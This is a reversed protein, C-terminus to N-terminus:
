KVKEQKPGAPDSAPGNKQEGKTEIASTLKAMAQRALRRQDAGRTYVALSARSRHGTIAMIEEDTCGINALRTAAADRLGHASCHPLEAEDCRDRFWNGFGASTFSRGRETVLFSALNSLPQAKMAKLLDPHLPIMLSTDTKEQKVAIMDGNVHKWGMGVVDGRRRGTYLLLALALGARTDLPHRALYQAIEAETWSHHGESKSRYKRIGITPNIAIMGLAVAHELLYRLVKMLNNAAMPTNSRDGMIKDLVARTLGKVPLDYSVRFRELINRRNGQTSAKLDKFGTSAYYSVILANITGAVTRGSGVITTAKAKGGELAAAYQRMFDESWPTGTLYVSFGSRRDRFLVRRKGNERDLNWCCGKPLGNKIRM